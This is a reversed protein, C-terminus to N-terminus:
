LAGSSLSRSPGDLMEKFEEMDFRHRENVYSVLVDVADPRGDLVECVELMIRSNMPLPSRNTGQTIRILAPYHKAFTDIHESVHEIQRHRDLSTPANSDLGLAKTITAARLFPGYTARDITEPNLAGRSFHEPFAQAMVMLVGDYAKPTGAYREVEGHPPQSMAIVFDIDDLALVCLTQDTSEEFIAISANFQDKNQVTSLVKALATQLLRPKRM